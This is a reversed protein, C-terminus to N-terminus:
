PVEKQSDRDVIHHWDQSLSEAYEEAEEPTAFDGRFDGWGGAPYYDPGAFLLYKKM